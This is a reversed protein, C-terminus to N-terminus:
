SLNSSDPFNTQQSAEITLKPHEKIMIKLTNRIKKLRLLILGVIRNM